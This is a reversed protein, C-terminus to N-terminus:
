NSLAGCEVHSNRSESDWPTEQGEVFRDFMGRLGLVGLFQVALM